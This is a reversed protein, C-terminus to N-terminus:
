KRKKKLHKLDAYFSTVSFILLFYFLSNQFFKSWNTRYEESSIGNPEQFPVPYGYTKGKELCKYTNEKFYTKNKRCEYGIDGKMKILGVNQYISSAGSFILALILLTVIKLFYKKM